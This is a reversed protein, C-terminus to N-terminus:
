APLTHVPFEQRCALLDHGRAGGYRVHWQTTLNQDWAGFHKSDSACATTGDGWIRPDRATCRATLCCHCDGTAARRGYRIPASCLALDKATTGSGLGAMRQFGANTGIGNLGLLLRPWASGSRDLTEYATSSKLVDTFNLRLDTEKLMDLYLSTMPWNAVIEAKLAILNAPESPQPDFPTVTIWGDKKRKRGIRVFSIPRKCARM